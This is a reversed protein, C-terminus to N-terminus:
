RLVGTIESTRRCAPHEPSFAIVSFSAGHRSWSDKKCFFLYSMQM